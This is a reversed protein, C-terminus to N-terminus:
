DGEFYRRGRFRTRQDNEFGRLRQCSIDIVRSVTKYGVIVRSRLSDGRQQSKASLRTRWEPRFLVAIGSIALVVRLM